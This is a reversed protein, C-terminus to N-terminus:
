SLAYGQVALFLQQPAPVQLEGRALVALPATFPTVCGSDLEHM